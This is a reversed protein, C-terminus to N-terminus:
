KRYMWALSIMIIGAIVCVTTLFSFQDQRVLQREVIQLQAEQTDQLWRNLALTNAMQMQALTMTPSMTVQIHNPQLTVDSRQPYEVKLTATHDSKGCGCLVVIAVSIILHRIM